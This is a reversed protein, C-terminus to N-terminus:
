NPKEASAAQADLKAKMEIAGDRLASGHPSYAIPDLLASAQAYHGQNGMTRALNMRYDPSQPLLSYAKYLGDYGVEPIKGGKTAHYRYFQALPVPDETDARNARVIAQLTAKWDEPKDSDQAREMLVEARVSHARAITADVAVARDAAALAADKNGAAWEAEALVTAAYASQPFQAAKKRVSQMLMAEKAPEPRRGMLRLEDYILAAQEPALLSAKAGSIDIPQPKM